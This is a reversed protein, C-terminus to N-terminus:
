EHSAGGEPHKRKHQPTLTTIGTAAASVQQKKQQGNPDAREDHAIRRERAVKNKKEKASEVARRADNERRKATRAQWRRERETLSRESQMLFTNLVSDFVRRHSKYTTAVEHDIDKIGVGAKYARM